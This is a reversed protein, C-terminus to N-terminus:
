QKLFKTLGIIRENIISGQFKDSFIRMPPLEPIKVNPNEQVLIERLKKFDRYRRRVVSSSRRFIPM